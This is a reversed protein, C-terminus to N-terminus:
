KYFLLDNNPDLGIDMEEVDFTRFDNNPSISDWSDCEDRHPAATMASREQDGILAIEMEIDDSIHSSINAASYNELFLEEAQHAVFDAPIRLRHALNSLFLRDLVDLPSIYVEQEEDPITNTAVTETGPLSCQVAADTCLENAKTSQSLIFDIYNDRNESNENTRAQSSTSQSHGPAIHPAPFSGDRFREVAFDEATNAFQSNMFLSPVPILEPSLTERKPFLLAETEGAVLVKLSDSAPRRQRLLPRRKGAARRSSRQSVTRAGVKKEAVVAVVPESLGSDKKRRKAPQAMKSKGSRSRTSRESVFPVSSTDETSNRQVDVSESDIGSLTSNLRASRRCANAM